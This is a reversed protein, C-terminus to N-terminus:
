SMPPAMKEEYEVWIFVFNYTEKQGTGKASFLSTLGENDLKLWKM